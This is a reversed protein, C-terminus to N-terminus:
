VGKRGIAFKDEIEGREKKKLYKVRDPVEVELYQLLEGIVKKFMSASVSAHYFEKEGNFQSPDPFSQDRKAM